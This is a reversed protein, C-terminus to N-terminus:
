IQQGTLGMVKGYAKEDIEYGVFKRGMEMCAFLSTGGGVFPDVVLDGVATFKEILYKFPYANQGMDHLSKDAGEDYIVDSVYTPKRILPPKYYVLILKSKTIVSLDWLRCFPGRFVLTCVWFYELGANSLASMVQPLYHRGTYAILFGGKKLARYGESGLEDWLPLKDKSYPPDTLILDVSGDAVDEVMMNRFDGHRFVVTSCNHKINEIDQKKKETQYIDRVMKYVQNVGCKGSLAKDWEKSVGENSEAVEKIKQVKILTNKSISAARAAKDLSRGGNSGQNGDLGGIGQTTILTKSGINEIDQENESTNGRGGLHGYQGADIQRQRAKEKEFELLKLAIEAKHASTLHRRHLNVQIIFDKEKSEDTFEYIITPVEAMQSQTAVEYRSYGDILEYKDNLILPMKIGNALIDEKLSKFEEQTPRPVIRKYDDRFIIHEISITCIREKDVNELSDTDNM